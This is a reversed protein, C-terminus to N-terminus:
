ALTFRTSFALVFKACTCIKYALHAVVHFVTDTIPNRPIYGAHDATSIEPFYELQHISGPQDLITAINYASLDSRTVIIMVTSVSLDSSFYNGKPRKSRKEAM